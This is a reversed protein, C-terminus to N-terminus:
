SVRFVRAIDQLAEKQQVSLVGGATIGVEKLVDMLPALSAADLKRLRKTLRALAPHPGGSESMLWRGLIVSEQGDAQTLRLHHAVTRILAEHQERSPLGGLELFALAIGAIAVGPEDLSDVPHQNHRRRFGFRRAASLVDGAMNGLEHTIEAANRVRNAWFYAAAVLGLLGIIFPMGAGQTPFIGACRM